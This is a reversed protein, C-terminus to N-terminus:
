DWLSFFHQGMASLGDVLLRKRREYLEKEKDYYKKRIEDREQKAEKSLSKRNEYQSDILAFFIKEYENQNDWNEESLSELVDAVSNLYDHWAEPTPFSGDGPYGNGETALHRLMQPIVDLFWEDMDWVDSDAWGRTARQWAVRLNLYVQRFFKWPRLLYYKPRMPFYTLANNNM